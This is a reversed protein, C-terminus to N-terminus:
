LPWKCVHLYTRVYTSGSIVQLYIHVYTRIYTCACVCTRCPPEYTHVTCVYMCVERELDRINNRMRQLDDNLSQIEDRAGESQRKMRDIDRRLDSNEARLERVESMTHGSSAAQLLVVYLRGYMCVYACIYM